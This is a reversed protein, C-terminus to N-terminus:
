PALNTQNWSAGDRVFLVREPFRATGNWVDIEDPKLLLGKASDPMPVPEPYRTELEAMSRLFESRDVPTSQRPGGHYYHDLLKLEYRKKSWLSRLDSEPLERVVGRLRYQKQITAWLIMLEFHPNMQLEHWKPSTTNTLLAVGDDRIDWLILTRVRPRGDRLDVTSLACLNAGSDGAKKAAEWDTRVQQVPDSV